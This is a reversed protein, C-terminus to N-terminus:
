PLLGDVLRQVVHHDGHTYEFVIYRVALVTAAVAAICLIKLASRVVTGLTTTLKAGFLPLEGTSRAYM